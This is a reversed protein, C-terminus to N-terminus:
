SLHFTLKNDSVWKTISNFEDQLQVDTNEPVLLTADDAYKVM